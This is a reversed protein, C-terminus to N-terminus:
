RWTTSGPRTRRARRRRRAPPRRAHVLLEPEEGLLADIRSARMATTPAVPATPVTVSRSSARARSRSRARTRTRVSPRAPREVAADDDLLRRGVREGGAVDVEREEGDARRRRALEDRVRHAAARDRDVLRRRVPELRADREDHGLHVALARELCSPMTALGFQQVIGSVHTRLGSCSAAPRRARARRSTGTPRRRPRAASPPAARPAAPRARGRRHVPVPVAVLRVLLRLEARLRALDELQGLQRDARRGHAHGHEDAVRLGDPELRLLREGGRLGLRQQARGRRHLTTSTGVGRAAACVSSTSTPRMRGSRARRSRGRARGRTRCGSCPRRASRSGSRRAAARGAARRRRLRALPRERWAAAQPREFHLERDRSRLRPADSTATNTMRSRAARIMAFSSCRAMVGGFAGVLIAPSSLGYPLRAGRQCREVAGEPVRVVVVREVALPSEPRSPSLALLSERRRRARLRARRSRSLREPRRLCRRRDGDRWLVVYLVALRRAHGRRLIGTRM